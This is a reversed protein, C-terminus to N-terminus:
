CAGPQSTPSALGDPDFAIGFSRTTLDDLIGQQSAEAVVPRGDVIRVPTATLTTGSETVDFRFVATYSSAERASPFAFNGTSYLVWADDIRQVGQLVHPHSGVVMDAGAEIWTSALDRQHSDPCAQREIGWHAMVVVLDAGDAATAVADVTAGAFQPCAWAIEPIFTEGPEPRDCPVRTFSLVAVRWGHVRLRTGAYATAPDPGTGAAALGAQELIEITRLVAETGYDLAHNNALAAMDVGAAALIQATIPPSKFTYVKDVPAGVETEAVTTELNVITLDGDALVTAIDGLPDRQDLGHTFSTDGAVVISIPPLQARTTTTPAATTNTEPAATTIREAPATAAATSPPGPPTSPSGAVERSCGALALVLVILGLPRMAAPYPAGPWPGVM